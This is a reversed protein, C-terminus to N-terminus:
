CDLATNFPIELIGYCIKHSIFKLRCVTIFLGNYCHEFYLYMDKIKNYRVESSSYVHFNERPPLKRTKRSKTKKAFIVGVRFYFGYSSIFSFPTTEHFNGGRSIDQWCKRSIKGWRFYGRKCYTFLPAPIMDTIFDFLPLYRAQHRGEERTAVSGLPGEGNRGHVSGMRVHDSRWWGSTSGCHRTCWM